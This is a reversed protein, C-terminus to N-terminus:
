PLNEQKKETNSLASQTDRVFLILHVSEKFHCRASLLHEIFVAVMIASKTCCGMIKFILDPEENTFCQFVSFKREM